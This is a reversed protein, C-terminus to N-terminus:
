RRLAALFANGWRTLKAHGVGFVRLLEERTGPRLAAMAALTADSFVACAPVGHAAALRRRLARLREYLREHVERGGAELRERRRGAARGATRERLVALPDRRPPGTTM